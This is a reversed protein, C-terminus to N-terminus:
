PKAELEKRRKIIADLAEASGKCNPNTLCRITWEAAAIREPVDWVALEYREFDDMGGVGVIIEKAFERITM